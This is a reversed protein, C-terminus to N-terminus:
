QFLPISFTITNKIASNQIDFPKVNCQLVEVKLYSFIAIADFENHNNCKISYTAVLKFSVLLDFLVFMLFPTNKTCEM